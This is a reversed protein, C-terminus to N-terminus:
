EPFILSLGVAADDDLVKVEFVGEASVIAQALGRELQFSRADESLLLRLVVRGAEASIYAPINLGDLWSAWYVINYFFDYLLTARRVPLDNFLISKVIVNVNSYVAIEAMEDFYIMLEDQPLLLTERERFFLNCRRKIYCLLLAIRATAKNQDAMGELQEIMTALKTTHSAIEAELQTMLATANSETDIARRIKEEEALVANAADLRSISEELDNQLQNLETIDEQWVVHGGTTGVSFILTDAGHQAPLPYSELAQTLEDESYEVASDSSWMTRGAGDIIRMGLSSNRFLMAYKSNVPIMGARVSTEMFLLTFLGVTMTFDSGWALPIQTIYGISYAVLLAFLALPFILGKKRLGQRGKYLMMSISLIIPIFCAALIVYYMVGYGYESLYEPNTLDIRFVLNHLDNTMVLAVLAANIICMLRMWQPLVASDTKDIIWALWLIVLPLSLEFIYYCFWLYRNLTSPTPIQYKFLRVTIWGLLILGTFFAARRVGKQMARHIFSAIWAVVFVVYVLVFLQHERGDASSYLRTRLISRRFNRLLNQSVTSHHIYDTVRAAIEYASSDPYLAPDCRGDTLRFGAHLLLSDISNKDVAILLETSSLLGREYALTGESPVVIEINRGGKILSAAQFDYCILVPPEFSNQILRGEAQLPAFFGMTNKHTYGEGELGYAIAATLMEYNMSSTRIGVEAHAGPIDSWSKIQADTRDRDIAIIVTALYHPYWYEAIGIERAAIAQTDFAETASGNAIYEFALNKATIVKHSPLIESILGPYATHADDNCIIAIHGGAGSGDPVCGTLPALFAAICLLVFTAIRLASKLTSINISQNLLGGRAWCLPM